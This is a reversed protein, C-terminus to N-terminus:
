SRPLQMNLQDMRRQLQRVRLQLSWCMQGLRPLATEDEAVQQRARDLALAHRWAEESRSGCLCRQILEPVRAILDRNDHLRRQAAARDCCTQRLDERCQRLSEALRAAEGQAQTQLDEPLLLQGLRRLRLEVNSVLDDLM